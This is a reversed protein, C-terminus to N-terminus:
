KAALIEGTADIEIRVSKGCRLMFVSPDKMGWQVYPVDFAITAKVNDGSIQLPVTLTLPHDAGHIRFIGAVQVQAAGQAPVGGIIKQPIFTIEPFKDSEIVEKHMKKDRGASGSDGSKADIVLAGSAVGSERNFRVEGQKLTFTGRVTHLPDSLTFTVKTQAPAFRVVSEQALTAKAFLISLVVFLVARSPIQRHLIKTM